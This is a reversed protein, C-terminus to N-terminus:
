GEKVGEMLEEIVIDGEIDSLGVFVDVIVDVFVFLLLIDLETVDDSVGIIVEVFM